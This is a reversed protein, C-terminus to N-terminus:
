SFYCGWFAALKEVVDCIVGIFLGMFSPESKGRWLLVYMIDTQVTDWWKSYAMNRIEGLNPLFSRTGSSLSGLGEALAEAWWWLASSHSYSDSVHHPSAGSPSFRRLMRLTGGPKKGFKTHLGMIDSNFFDCLSNAAAANANLGIICTEWLTHRTVNFWRFKSLDINADISGEMLCRRVHSCGQHSGWTDDARYRLYRRENNAGRTVPLLMLAERAGRGPEQRPRGWRTRTWEAQFNCRQTVSVHHLIHLTVGIVCVRTSKSHLQHHTLGFLVYRRRLRDASTTRNEVHAANVGRREMLDGWATELINWWTTLLFFFTSHQYRKLNNSFIM